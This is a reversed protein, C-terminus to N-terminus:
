SADRLLESTNARSSARTMEMLKPQTRYAHNVASASRGGGGEASQISPRGYPKALEGCGKHSGGTKRWDLYEMIAM